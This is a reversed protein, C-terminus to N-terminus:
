SLKCENMLLPDTNGEVLEAPTVKVRLFATHGTGDYATKEGELDVSRQSEIEDNAREAGRWGYVTDSYGTDPYNGNNWPGTSNLLSFAVAFPLALPARVDRHLRRVGM